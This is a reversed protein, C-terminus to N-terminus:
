PASEPLTRTNWKAQYEYLEEPYIEDPEPPYRKMGRWPLPLVVQGGLTEPNQDKMWGDALLCYTRNMGDEPEDLAEFGLDIAEGHSSVVLKSDAKELLETVDGLRTYRGPAVIFESHHRFHNGDYELPEANGAKGALPYGSIWLKALLLRAEKINAPATDRDRNVRIRDWYILLNSSIRLRQNETKFQGGLDLVMTKPRGAPFGVDKSLMRWSGDAELIEVSPGSPSLGHEGALGMQTMSAYQVWGDMVLLLPCGPEGVGLDIELSHSQAFGPFRSLDFSDVARGDLELLLETVNNGRDDVAKVVPQTDALSLLESKDRPPLFQYRERPVIEVDSEHDVAFLKVRDMMLIEQLPEILRLRLTGDVAQLLEDDFCIYEDHDPSVGLGEAEPLGLASAGIIDSIYSYDSGNFTFLQPCSAKLGKERFQKTAPLELEVRLQRVGSPWNIRFFELHSEDGFSLTMDLPDGTLYGGGDGLQRAQWTNGIRADVTAGLGHPNSGLQGLLSLSLWSRGKKPNLLVSSGVASTLLLDESGDRNIDASILGRLGGTAPFEKPLEIARVPESKDLPLVSYLASGTTVLLSPNSSRLLDSVALGFCSDDPISRAIAEDLAQDSLFRGRGDALRITLAPRGLSSFALDLLGDANLDATTLAVVNRPPKEIPAASSPVFSGDRQNLYVQTEGDIQTAIYDLDTDGDLDTFLGGMSNNKRAALGSSESVDVFTSGTNMFLRDKDLMRSLHVDILGDQNFDVASVGTCWGDSTLGLEETRDRFGETPSGAFVLLGDTHTVLIELVGDGDLDATAAGMGKATIETDFRGPRYKNDSTGLWLLAPPGDSADDCKVELYDTHGDANIDFLLGGSGFSCAHDLSVESRLQELKPPIVAALLRIDKRAMKSPPNAPEPIRMLPGMGRYRFGFTERWLEDKVLEFRALAEQGEEHRDLQLLLQGLSYWSGVSMPELRVAKKLSLMALKLDGKAKAALGISYPLSYEDPQLPLAQRFSEIAEDLRGLKLYSHGRVFFPSALDTRSKSLANLSIIVPELSGQFYGAIAKGMILPVSTADMAMGLSFEQEAEHYRRLEMLALGRNFHPMAKPGIRDHYSPEERPDPSELTKPADRCGLM